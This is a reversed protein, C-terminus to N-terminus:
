PEDPPSFGASSHPGEDTVDTSGHRRQRATLPRARPETFHPSYHRALTGLLTGAFVGLVAGILWGFYGAASTGIVGAAAAGLLAGGIGGAFLGVVGYVGARVVAYALTGFLAALTVLFALGAAAPVLFPGEDPGRHALFAGALSGVAGLFIMGDIAGVIAGHAKRPLERGAALARAVRLGFVTGAAKGSGWYTAGTLAGFLGGLVACFGGSGLVVAFVRLRDDM